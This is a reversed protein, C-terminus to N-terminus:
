VLQLVTQMMEDVAAILRAAGQYSRQYRMLSVAEEDMSVGSLAQRQATLAEQVAAAAKAESRASQTGAAVEHVLSEYRRSLSAGGLLASPEDQLAAILKATGNDGPQGNRSAALRRPDDLSSSVAIDGAGAGTFFGGIGLSALVGSTDDAFSIDQGPSDAAISLRGGSISATIGDVADLAAALDDLSMGGGAGDLPVDILTRTMQGTGKDRVNVVFSGNIPTFRLGAEASDLAATTDTAGHSATVSDYGVLGQGTSHLRNLEFILGAALEDLGDRTADIAERAEGTGGIAGTRANLPTGNDAFRPTFHTVGDVVTRELQLGHSHEGRVLPESGIYVTVSGNEEEISHLNVLGALEGLLADRQDRLTNASPGNGAEARVIEGNLKAIQRSLGDGTETLNALREGTGLALNELQRDMDNLKAALNQGERLVVQRLGADTPRNGLESWANFFRSMASSLDDDGLENFVAEVQGLWEANASSGEADGIGARLRTMLAQDIQREVGVLSVGTGLQIGPQFTRGPMSEIRAVQRTYNPDAAGAINSGVTQIAAQTTALATKGIQLTGTLSM